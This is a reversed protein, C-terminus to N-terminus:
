HKRTAISAVAVFVDRVGDRGVDGCVHSSGFFDVKGIGVIPPGPVVAQNRFRGGAVEPLEDIRLAILFAQESRVSGILGVSTVYGFRMTRGRGLGDRAPLMDELAMVPPVGCSSSTSSSPMGAFM